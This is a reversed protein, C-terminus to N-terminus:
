APPRDQQVTVSGSTAFEDMGDPITDFHGSVAGATVVTYTTGVPPPPGMLVLTGSLSAAGTVTLSASM